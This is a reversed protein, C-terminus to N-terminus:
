GVIKYETKMRSRNTDLNLTTIMWNQEHHYALLSKVTSNFLNNGLFTIAGFKMIRKETLKIKVM